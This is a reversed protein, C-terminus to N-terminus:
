FAAGGKKEQEFISKLNHTMWMRGIKDATGCINLSYM